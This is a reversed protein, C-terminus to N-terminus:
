RLVSLDDPSEAELGTAPMARRARERGCAAACVSENNLRLVGESPSALCRNSGIHTKPETM